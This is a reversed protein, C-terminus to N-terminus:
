AFQVARKLDRSLVSWLQLGEVEQVARAHQDGAISGTGIIAINITM